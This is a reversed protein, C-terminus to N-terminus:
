LNNLAATASNNNNITSRMKKLQQHHLAKKRITSPPACRQISPFTAQCRTTILGHWFTLRAETTQHCRCPQLLMNTRRWHVKKILTIYGFWCTPVDVFTVHIIQTMLSSWVLVDLPHDPWRWYSMSRKQSRSWRQYSVGTVLDCNDLDYIMVERWWGQLCRLQSGM